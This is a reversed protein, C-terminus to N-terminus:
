VLFHEVKIQFELKISCGSNKNAFDPMRVSSDLIGVTPSESKALATLCSFPQNRRPCV